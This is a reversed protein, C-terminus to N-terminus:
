LKYDAKNKGDDALVVDSKKSSGRPILLLATAVIGLMLWKNKKKHNVGTTISM